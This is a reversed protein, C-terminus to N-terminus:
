EQSDLFERIDDEITDIDELCKKAKKQTPEIYKLMMTVHLVDLETESFEQTKKEPAPKSAYAPAILYEQQVKPEQSACGAMFGTYLAIAAIGTRIFNRM